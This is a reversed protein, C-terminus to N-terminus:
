VYQPPKPMDGSIAMFTILVKVEDKSVLITASLERLKFYSHINYTTPWNGYTGTTITIRHIRKHVLRSGLKHPTFCM